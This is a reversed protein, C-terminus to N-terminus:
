DETPTITITITPEPSPGSSEKVRVNSGPQVETGASPNQEAVTGPECEDSFRSGTVVFDLGEGEVEEQASGLDQCIVDPVAVTAPGSSVVLNVATGPRAESDGPPDQELVVGEDEDSEQPTVTGVVFGAEVLIEEADEETEGVVNPVVEPPPGRSVVLTVETGEEVREGAPPDQSIVVGRGVEPDFETEVQVGFGADELTDVADDQQEGVVNPVGVLETPPPLLSRVLFFAALGLAALALIVGLAILWGRRRGEQEDPPVETMVATEGAGVPGTVVETADAM